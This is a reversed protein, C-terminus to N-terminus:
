SCLVGDDRLAALTEESMMLRERLVSENHEGLVPPPLHEREMSRSLKIPNGTLPLRGIKSHEVELRMHRAEAQPNEFVQAVNRVRGVPIGSDELLAIWDSTSRSRFLPELRARLEDYHRVRRENTAFKAEDPAGEGAAQCFRRWLGDNGVGVIVHGDSTEFTEYPALSSHRNGLRRPVDGTMLYGQAQYCLTAMVSDFLAVDIYEGKGSKERRYLSALIGESAMMGTFIDALSAGVKMPAGEPEGTLAMWGGEGQMVADYGPRQSLPGTQGYGSVSCYVLSPHKPSLSEYDLGLRAMTGPRFNEILVDVGPLLEHIIRRGSEKKLDICLSKKNRNVALFYASEGEVFPPGWHRCDDGGPPEVKLVEAGLDGLLMTCYPGALIRSFDLVTLDSLPLDKM